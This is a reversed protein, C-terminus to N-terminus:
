LFIETTLVFFVEGRVTIFLLSNKVQYFGGVQKTKSKPDIYFWPPFELPTEKLVQAVSWQNALNDCNDIM